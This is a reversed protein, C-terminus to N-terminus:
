FIVGDGSMRRNAEYAPIEYWDATGDPKIPLYIVWILNPGYKGRVLRRGPWEAPDAWRPVSYGEREAQQRHETKWQHDKPCLLQLNEVVTNGSQRAQRHDRQVTGDVACMVCRGHDRTTAALYAAKEEARTPKPVKPAIM